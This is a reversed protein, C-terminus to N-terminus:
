EIPTVILINVTRCYFRGEPLSNDYLLVSEGLGEARSEPVGLARATALARNRSLTLNHDEEGIKDSYGKITVTSNPMIRRKAIDAIEANKESLRYENFDFLILDYRDIEKDALLEVMKKEVTLEEVPLKQVASEWTKGDFDIVELRYEIPRDFTPLNQRHEEREEALDWDISAPVAGTGSFTKLVKSGQMATVRWTKVGIKANAYPKFRILPPNSERLTDRIIIPQVIQPLNSIIEVRRNEEAGEPTTPNSPKDPLNRAEVKIKNPDIGWVNVFYDRIKTARQMSLSQNGAEPGQNSNCGILTLRAQPYQKMRKAFINMSHYYVDLTRFTYLNKIDFTSTESPDLLDYREPIESSGEDFFVYNLIPHMRRYLFEEVILTSVDTEQGNEDVGVADIAADLTPSVPLEALPPDIPPAPPAPPPPPPIIKRPAYKLSLGGGLTSVTWPDSSVNTLGFAFNVEPALFFTNASNLPLDYAAAAVLAASISSADPIDGSNVNRFRSDTDTFRGNNPKVIEEQQEYTKTMVYGIELGGRISFNDSLRIGLAPTLTVSSLSADVKHEFEGDVGFGDTGALYIDEIRTLVGSRDRYGVRTDVFLKDSIPFSYLFGGGFGVGTGTEFRPCCSPIGPLASFDATHLNLGGFGYIGYVPRSEYPGQAYDQGFAAVYAIFLAAAPAVIRAFLFQIKM